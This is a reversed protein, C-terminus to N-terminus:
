PAVKRVMRRVRYCDGGLGTIDDRCFGLSDEEGFGDWHGEGISNAALWADLEAEEGDSLGSYDGNIIASAWWDGLQFDYQEFNM